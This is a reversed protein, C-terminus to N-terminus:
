RFRVYDQLKQDEAFTVVQHHGAEQHLRDVNPRVGRLTHRYPNRERGPLHAVM